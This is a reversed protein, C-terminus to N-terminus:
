ALATVKRRRRIAAGTMAFGALMMAWTSPEPVPALQGRIEGGPFQTTHINFYAQGAIIGSFLTAQATAINGLNTANNLFSPNYSSALTMNFTQDYTGSMVGSPFGPFTPTTTAVGVNATPVTCCHIHAATTTGLLGSFFAEVRMTNATWDLTVTANGTAPSAIQPVENTGALTTQFVLIQAPAPAAVISAAVALAFAILSSRIM